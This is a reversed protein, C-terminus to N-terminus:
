AALVFGVYALVGRREGGAYGIAYISAPITAVGVLALFFGGLPDLALELGGLPVLWPVSLTWARGFVGALGAAIAVVGVATACLFGLAAM